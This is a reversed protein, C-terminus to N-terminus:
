VIKMLYKEDDVKGLTSLIISNNSKKDLTKMSIGM